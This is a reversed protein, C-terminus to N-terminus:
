ISVIGALFLYAGHLPYVIKGFASIGVSRSPPADCSTDV